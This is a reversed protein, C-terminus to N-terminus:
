HSDLGYCSEEASDAAICLVLSGTSFDVFMNTNAQHLWFETEAMILRTVRWKSEMTPCTEASVSFFYMQM